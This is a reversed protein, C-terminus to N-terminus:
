LGRKALEVRARLAIEDCVARLGADDTEAAREALAALDGMAGADVRGALLDDRLGDLLELMRAGRALARSRGGPRGSQLSLLAAVAQAARAGAAGSAGGVSSVGATAGDGRAAGARDAPAFGKAGDVTGAARAGDSKGARSPGAAARNKAPSIEVM